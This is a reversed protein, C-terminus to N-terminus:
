PVIINNFYNAPNIVIDEHLKKDAYNYEFKAYIQGSSDIKDIQYIAAIVKNNM